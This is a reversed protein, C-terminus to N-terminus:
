THVFPHCIQDPLLDKINESISLGWTPATLGEHRAVTKFM